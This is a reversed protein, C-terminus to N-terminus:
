NKQIQVGVHSLDAQVAQAGQDSYGVTAREGVRRTRQM